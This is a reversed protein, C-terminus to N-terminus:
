VEEHQFPKPVYDVAGLEFGKVKSGTDTLGTMFIVPIDRTPPSAKLQGCTSYGDLNPMLVDLLILDPVIYDVQELASEGDEAVSVAFHHASLLDVLVSLNAPTDDVILILPPNDQPANM